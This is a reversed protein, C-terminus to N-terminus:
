YWNTDFSHELIKDEKDVSECVFSFPCRLDGHIELFHRYRKPLQGESPFQKCYPSERLCINRFLNWFLYHLTLPSRLKLKKSIYIIAKSVSERIEIDEAKSVSYSKFLKYSLQEGSIKITGLRLHGRVEHYDVPPGLNHEDAYEWDCSNAMLGLLYYTKKLVPDNYALFNNLLGILSPDNDNIFYNAQYYLDEFSKWAKGEMVSGLNRILEVRGQLDSFTSKFTPDFFVEKLEGVSIKGWKKPNLIERNKMAESFLKNVLYDWGRFKKGAIVGELYQTQHCIGVALLFFNSKEIVNLEEFGEDEVYAPIKVKALIAVIEDCKIEDVQVM